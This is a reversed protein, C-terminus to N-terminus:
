ELEHIPAQVPLVPVGPQIDTTSDIRGTICNADDLNVAVDHCESSSLRIIGSVAEHFAAKAAACDGLSRSGLVIVALGLIAAVLVAHDVLALSSLVAFGPILITAFHSIKPGVRLRILQRGSGHEEIAMRCRVAGFLGGRIEIDWHDYNGGRTVISGQQRLATEISELWQSASQWHESWIVYNQSFPQRYLSLGRRRWPTLGFRFRGYLRALPQIGHLLATIVMAKVGGASADTGRTLSSDAVSKIVSFLSLGATSILLPLALLMPKWFVGMLSFILLVANLLYWEPM